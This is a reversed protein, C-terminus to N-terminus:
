ASGCRGRGRGAAGHEGRDGGSRGRGGAADDRLRLAVSVVAALEADRGPEDVAGCPRDAYAAGGAGGRGGRVRDGLGAGAREGRRHFLLLSGGLGRIAPIDLEGPGVPQRFAPMRLAEARAMAAQADGSGAAGDGGGVARARDPAFAGARGPRHQRRPQDGRAFVADGAELPAARDPPVGAGRLGGRARGRRGGVGRVGGVGGGRPEVRPPIRGPHMRDDLWILSREGDEAIRRPSAMRFRDNFIEHALGGTTGRPWCRRWSTTSRCTGRGRSTASTGRGSCLDM